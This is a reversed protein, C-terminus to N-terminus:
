RVRGRVGLDAQRRGRFFPPVRGGRNVEDQTLETEEEASRKRSALHPRWRRASAPWCRSQRRRRVQGSLIWNWISTSRKPPETRRWWRTAREATAKGIMNVGKWYYADARNPEIEITKNFATIADDVKGTNTYSRAWRSITPRPMPRIPRRPQRSIRGRGQGTQNRRPMHTPWGSQPLACQRAQDGASEPLSRDAEPYKKAGVYADGLYAWLLDQTPEAATAEQM